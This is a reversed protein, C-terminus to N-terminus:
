MHIPLGLALEATDMIAEGVSPHAQITLAIDEASFGNEIAFSLPSSLDAASVGAMQAGVVKGEQAEDTILRIFGDTQNLSLARGNGALPFKSIKYQKGAAKAEEAKMGTTSLEPETYVAIPLAQFVHKPSKGAIAEAAAKGNFMAEHALASGPTIDGVAYIGDINTMQREDVKVKGEETFAVGIKELNLGETFPKRGVSVLVVSSTLTEDQGEKQYHITMGDDTEQATTITVGTQIHIGKATYQKVVLDSLDKDMFPLIHAEKELLSVKVGLNSLAGALQSGVYGAGVITISDPLEQINLAATTDIVHKGFPLEKLSAATTGTSIICNDFSLTQKGATGEVVLQKTDKFTATGRIIEVKNKKLLAEVGKTLRGVVQENKWKQTKKIDITTTGVNVGFTHSDLAYHYRHAATILAKSPICGINLCVGGIYEKEIITVNQGLQAARIAATYGGPGAGIVITKTSQNAPIDTM